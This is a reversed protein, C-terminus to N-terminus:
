PDGVGEDEWWAGIRGTAFSGVIEGAKMFVLANKKEEVGEARITAIRGAGVDGKRVNGMNLLVKYTKMTRGGNM